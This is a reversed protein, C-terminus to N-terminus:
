FKEVCVVISVLSLDPRLCWCVKEFCDESMFMSDNLGSGRSLYKKLSHGNGFVPRIKKSRSTHKYGGNAAVWTM